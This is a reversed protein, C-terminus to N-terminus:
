EMVADTFRFERFVFAMNTLPSSWYYNMTPNFPIITDTAGGVSGDLLIGFGNAVVSGSALPFPIYTSPIYCYTGVRMKLRMSMCGPYRGTM